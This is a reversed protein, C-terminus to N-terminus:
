LLGPHTNATPSEFESKGRERIFRQAKDLYEYYATHIESLKIKMGGIRFIESEFYSPTSFDWCTGTLYQAVPAFHYPANFSEPTGPKVIGDVTTVLKQRNERKTKASEKQKGRIQSTEEKEGKKETKNKEIMEKIVPDPVYPVYRSQEQAMAGAIFFLMMLVFLLTKM